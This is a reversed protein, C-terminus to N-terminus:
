QKKALSTLSLDSPTLLEFRASTRNDTIKEDSVPDLWISLPRVWFGKDDYLAQYVVMWEDTESHQAMGLVQYLGGKYHRYTGPTPANAPLADHHEM